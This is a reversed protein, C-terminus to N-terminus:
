VALFCPNDSRRVSTCLLGHSFVVNALQVGLLLWDPAVNLTTDQMNPIDQIEWVLPEMSCAVDSAESSADAEDTPEVVQGSQM